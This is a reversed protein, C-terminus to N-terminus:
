SAPVVHAGRMMTLLEDKLMAANDHHAHAHTDYAASASYVIVELNRTSDVWGAIYCDLTVDHFADLDRQWQPMPPVGIFQVLGGSNESLDSHSHMLAHWLPVIHGDIEITGSQTLSEATALPKPDGMAHLWNEQDLSPLTTAWTKVDVAEVNKEPKVVYAGLWAQYYPSAPDTRDSYHRWLTHPAGFTYYNVGEAHAKAWIPSMDNKLPTMWAAPVVAFTVGVGDKHEQALVGKSHNILRTIVLQQLVFRMPYAIALLILVAAIFL